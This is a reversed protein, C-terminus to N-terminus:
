SRRLVGAIKGYAIQSRDVPRGDALTYSDFLELLPTVTFDRELLRPHPLNLQATDCCCGEYDLIDLDLTRPGNEQLRM